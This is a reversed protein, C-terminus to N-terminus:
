IGKDEVTVTGSRVPGEYPRVWFDMPVDPIMEVRRREQAVKHLLEALKRFMKGAWVGEEGDFSMQKYQKTKKGLAERKRLFSHYRAKNVEASPADHVAKLIALKEAQLAVSIDLYEHASSINVVDELTVYARPGPGGGYNGTGGSEGPREKRCAAQVAMLTLVALWIVVHRRM